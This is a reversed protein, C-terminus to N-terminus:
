GIQYTIEWAAAENVYLRLVYHGPTFNKGPLANFEFYMYKSAKALVASRTDVYKGDLHRVYSIKTGAPLNALSMVALIRRDTASQFVDTPSQASGDAALLRAMQAGTIGLRTNVGPPPAVPRPEAPSGAATSSGLAGPVAVAASPSGSTAHTAPQPTPRPAAQTAAGCGCLLCAVAASILTIRM